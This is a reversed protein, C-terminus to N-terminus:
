VVSAERPVPPGSPLPSVPASEKPGNPPVPAFSGITGAFSLKGHSKTMVMVSRTDTKSYDFTMDSQLVQIVKRESFNTKAKEERRM